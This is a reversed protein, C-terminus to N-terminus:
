FMVRRGEDKGSAGEVALGGGDGAGPGPAVGDAAAAELGAAVKERADPVGGLWSPRLLASRHHRSVGGEPLDPVSTVGGDKESTTRAPIAAAAAKFAETGQGSGGAAGERPAEGAGRITSFRALM